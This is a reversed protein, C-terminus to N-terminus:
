KKPQEAPEPRGSLEIKGEAELKVNLTAEETLPIWFMQRCENKQLTYRFDNSGRLYETDICFSDANVTFSGIEDLDFYVKEASGSNLLWNNGSLIHLSRFHSEEIVVPHYIHRFSLSLSDREFGRITTRQDYMGSVIGQVGSSVSLTMGNQSNVGLWHAGALRKDLKESPFAFAITVTDGTSTISVFPELDAAFSIGGSALPDAPRVELPVGVFSAEKIRKVDVDGDITRDARPAVLKLVKCEPLPFTKQPGTFYLECDASDLGHKSMYFIAGSMLLLGGLLMGLIIYSTRKM